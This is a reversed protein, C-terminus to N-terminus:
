YPYCQSSMTSVSGSNITSGSCSLYNFPKISTSKSTQVSSTLTDIKTSLDTIEQQVSVTDTSATTTTTTAATPTGIRASLSFMFILVVCLLLFNIIALSSAKPRESHRKTTTDM